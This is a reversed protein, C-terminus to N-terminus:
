DPKNEDDKPAAVGLYGGIGFQVLCMCEADWYHNQPRSKEWFPKGNTKKRDRFEAAMQNEYTFNGTEKTRTQEAFPGSLQERKLSYFQVTQGGGAVLASLMDKIGLQSWTFLPVKINVQQGRLTVLRYEPQQESHMRYVGDKHRWSNRSTTDGALMTWTFWESAEIWKGHKKRQFKQERIEQAAKTIIDHRFFSCDISFNENTIQNYEQFRKLEDWSKLFARDLQSMNGTADIARAVAWFNGTKPSGSAATLDDDQQADAGGVRCAENPIGGKVNHSTAILPARAYEKAGEWTKAACKQWWQKIHEDSGFQEKIRKAKIYELMMAGWPLRRNIWQPINFGVHEPLADTRAAVYHSSRDLQERLARTDRWASGCSYCEFYTENLIAQENYSGNECKANPGRMFGCNRRDEALLEATLEDVTKACGDPLAAKFEDERKRSWAKWNWIQSTHCCPCIVHLEQQNTDDYHTDFDFGSEGGQSELIIKKNDPYQTTRAIAQNIMGNRETVFADCVVLCGLNLGQTNALNAPLIRLTKDPFKISGNTKDFRDAITKLKTKFAPIGEYFDMIRTTSQDDAVDGSGFYIAVDGNGHCIFHAAMVEASFSKVTKVGAKIVIKRKHPNDYAEFVPKLYCATELDFPRGQNNHGKGMKAGGLNEVCGGYFSHGISRLATCILSKRDAM